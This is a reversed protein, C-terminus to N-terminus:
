GLRRRKSRTQPEQVAARGVPVSPAAAAKAKPRGRQKSAAARAKAMASKAKAKANAINAKPRGSAKLAPSAEAQSSSPASADDSPLPQKLESSAALCPEGPVLSLWEELMEEAPKECSRAMKVWSVPSGSPEAVPEFGLKRYLERAPTNQEVVSLMLRRGNSEPGFHPAIHGLKALKAIRAVVGVLLLKAVGRRQVKRSVKLHSVAFSGTTESQYCYCYGVLQKHQRGSGFGHARVCKLTWQVLSRAATIRRIINRREAPSSSLGVAECIDKKSADPMTDTLIRAHDSVFEEELSAMASVDTEGAPMVAFVPGDGCATWALLNKDLRFSCVLLAQFNEQNRAWAFPTRGHADRKTVDAGHEFLAYIMEPRGKSAAFFIPTQGNRDRHNLDGQRRAYYRLCEINGTKALYHAATQKDFDVHNLDVGYEEVLLKTVEAAYRPNQVSYFALTQSLHNMAQPDFADDRFAQRLAEPGQECVARGAEDRWRLLTITTSDVDSVNVVDGPRLEQTEHVLQQEEVPVGLRRYIAVKLQELRWSGAGDFTCKQGGIGVISLPM